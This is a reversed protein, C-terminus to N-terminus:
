GNEPPPPFHGEPLPERTARQKDAAAKAERDVRDLEEQVRRNAEEPDGDMKKLLEGATLGRNPAALRLLLREQAQRKHAAEVQELDGRQLDSVLGHFETAVHDEVNDPM